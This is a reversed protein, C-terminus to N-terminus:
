GATRPAVQADSRGSRALSDAVFGDATRVEIYHRLFRVTEESRDRAVGLAQPIQKFPPEVIRWHPRQAVGTTLPARIGGAVELDPYEALATGDGGRVIEAATLTRTLYLDYASGDNVGVRM